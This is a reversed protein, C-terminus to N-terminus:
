KHPQGNLFVIFGEKKEGDTEPDKNDIEGEDRQHSPGIPMPFKQPNKVM